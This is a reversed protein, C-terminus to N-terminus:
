RHCFYMPADAGAASEWFCQLLEATGGVAFLALVVIFRPLFGSGCPLCRMARDM